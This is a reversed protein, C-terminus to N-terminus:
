TGVAHNTVQGRATAWAAAFQELAVVAWFLGLGAYATTWVIRSTISREDM